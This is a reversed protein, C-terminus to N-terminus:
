TKFIMLPCGITIYSNVLTFIFLILLTLILKFKFCQENTIIKTHYYFVVKSFSIPVVTKVIHVRVRRLVVIEFSTFLILIPISSFVYDTTIRVTVVSQNFLFVRLFDVFSEFIHHFFLFLFSSFKLSLVRFLHCAFKTTLLFRFFFFFNNQTILFNLNFWNLHSAYDFSYVFLTTPNM